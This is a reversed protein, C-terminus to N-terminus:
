DDWEWGIVPGMRDHQIVVHGHRLRYELPARPRVDPTPPMEIDGDSEAEPIGFDGGPEFVRLEEEPWLRRALRGSPSAPSRMAATTLQQRWMAFQHMASNDM